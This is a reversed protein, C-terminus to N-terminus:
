RGLSGGVALSIAVAVVGVQLSIRTGWIIRALLDRGFNDTGLWHTSSPPAYRERLNQDSPDYPSLWPAGVATVFFLLVILAGVGSSKRTWLIYRWFRRFRGRDVPPLGRAPVKAPIHTLTTPQDTM